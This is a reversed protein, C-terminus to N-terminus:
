ARKLRQILKICGLFLIAIAVVICLAYLAIQYRGVREITIRINEVLPLDQHARDIIQQHTSVISPHKDAVNNTEGIDQSLNYLEMTGNYPQTVSKWDGMRVAQAGKSGHFEWYLYEHQKQSQDQGVLTPYLSIGDVSYTQKIDALDAVTPFLDPFYSILDSVGPEISGPNWIILPVRIGGEYLEKKMGRLNSNSNLLEPDYGGERHSGNDSTFIIVTNKELGRENLARVIKGIYNDMRTVMAAYAKQSPLLDMAKYIGLDPVELGLSKAENNAHPITYALYLFFQKQQHQSIFQLAKDTFLDNSYEKKVTAVGEGHEGPDPVRNELKVRETDEILFEPYSNHAHKQNLYGYFYDFGQKIPIGSSNEEGLAWKGIMGTAINKGKLVEAITLDSERLNMEMNNARAYCNGTHLGTVFTCRAPRCTSSGSYFQTFRMGEAAMRDLNPTEIIDQGYSGLDGYGLDDAVIVIVNPQKKNASSYKVSVIFISFTLVFLFIAKKINIISYRKLKSSLLVHKKESM